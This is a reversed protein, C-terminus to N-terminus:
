FEILFLAVFILVVVLGVMNLRKKNKIFLQLMFDILMAFGAVGALGVMAVIGWGEGEALQSYNFITYGLVGALLLGAAGNLVTLRYNKM